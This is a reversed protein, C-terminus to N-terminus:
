FNNLKGPVEPEASPQWDESTYLPKLLMQENTVRVLTEKVDKGKIEKAALAEWKKNL